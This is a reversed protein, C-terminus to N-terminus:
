YLVHQYLIHDQWAGAIKLYAPALGIETFQYAAQMREADSPRLLRTEITGALTYTDPTV